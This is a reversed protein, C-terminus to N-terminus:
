TVKGSTIDGRQVCLGRTYTTRRKRVPAWFQLMLEKVRLASCSTSYWYCFIVFGHCELFLADVVERSFRNWHRVVGTTFFKKKTDLGFLREKLKFDNGKTRDCCVMSTQGKKRVSVM